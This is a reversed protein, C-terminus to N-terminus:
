LLLSAKFNHTISVHHVLSYVRSMNFESPDGNELKVWRVFHLSEGIAAIFGHDRSVGVGPTRVCVSMTM